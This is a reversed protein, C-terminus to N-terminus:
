SNSMWSSPSLTSLVLMDSWSSPDSLSPGAILKSIWWKITQRAKCSGARPKNRIAWRLTWSRCASIMSQAQLELIRKGWMSSRSRAIKLDALWMTGSIQYLSLPSSNTLTSCKSYVSLLSSNTQYNWNIQWVITSTSRISMKWNSCSSNLTRCFMLFLEEQNERLVKAM